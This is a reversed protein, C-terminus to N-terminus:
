EEILESQYKFVQAASSWWNKSLGAKQKLHTWFDKKNPLQAWVSPLFTSKREGYALIVGDKGADIQDLVDAESSFTMREPISLISLKYKLTALEHEQVVSFRNDHFAASFANQCIDQALPCWAQLTGVCGRLRGKRYITVFTARLVKLQAPVENVDVPYACGHQVGHAVSRRAWDLLQPHWKADIHM